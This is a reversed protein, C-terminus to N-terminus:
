DYLKFVTIMLSNSDGTFTRKIEEIKIEEEEKSSAILFYSKRKSAAKNKILKDIRKRLSM